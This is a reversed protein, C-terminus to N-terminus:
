LGRIIEITRTLGSKMDYEPSFGLDKLKHGNLTARTATSYGAREKESPLEFTVSTGAYSAIIGALEKLMLDSDKGVINYAEGNEGNFLIFLLAAVADAIYTYSYLQTGESKLIIDERNVGKKIFQSIAKSDSKLMTPGYLRSLRPIVIDLGEAAKYAQCLTEGCRKSEPYGARMTNCNIYGLYSEDFSETDGTNEGYIEVSSAFIFRKAKKAAALRLLTDTGMINTMITGVPDGSYQLPHTNSAAHLVYDAAPVDIESDRSLDAKVFHLFESDRYPNFRELFREENRGLAYIHCGLGEGANKKMIVDILFSGVMGTAGSIVFSSGSLKEFPYDKGAVYAVDEMYLSSDYLTGMDIDKRTM